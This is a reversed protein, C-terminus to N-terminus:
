LIGKEKLIPTPDVTPNVSATPNSPTGAFFEMHLHRGTVNGTAGETGLPTGAAVTDGEKVRVSGAEMHFMAITLKGDTTQGTLGTGYAGDTERTKVIKMDTVAVITGPTGPTSLDVGYHFNGLNITGAPTPRPGYGSTLTSGPLPHVWNGELDGVVTNGAAPCTGSPDVGVAKEGGLARVLGAAQTRFQTYHNPDANRQVRNIARSPELTEWGEVRQLAKFFNTASITPDMRDSYSGWAGNDRQQFLGRSDPGAGDGHDLARLTSEGIAAQVGLLQASVPLGLSKAARMIAAANKLQEDDFGPVGEAQASGDESVGAPAVCSEAAQAPSNGGDLIVVLFGALFAPTLLALGICGKNSNM